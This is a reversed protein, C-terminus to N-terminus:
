EILDCYCECVDSDCCQSKTLKRKSMNRNRTPLAPALKQLLPESTKIQGITIYSQEYDIYDQHAPNIYSVEPERERVRVCDQHVKLQSSRASRFFVIM